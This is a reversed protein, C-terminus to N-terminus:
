TSGKDYWPPSAKHLTNGHMLTLMVIRNQRRNRQLFSNKASVALDDAIASPVIAFHTAAPRQQAQPPNQAAADAIVACDQDINM